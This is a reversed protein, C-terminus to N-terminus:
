DPFRSAECPLRSSKWAIRCIGLRLVRTFQRTGVEHHDADANRFFQFQFSLRFIIVYKEKM